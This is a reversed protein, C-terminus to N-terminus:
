HTYTNFNYAYKICNSTMDESRHLIYLLPFFLGFSHTPLIMTWLNIKSYYGLFNYEHNRKNVLSPKPIIKVSHWAKDRRVQMDVISQLVIFPFYLGYSVGPKRVSQPPQLM